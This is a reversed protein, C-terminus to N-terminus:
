ASWRLVRPTCQAGEWGSGPAQRGGQTQPLVRQGHTHPEPQHGIVSAESLHETPGSLLLMSGSDQVQGHPAASGTTASTATAPAASHPSQLSQTCGQFAHPPAMHESAVPMQLDCSCTALGRAETERM